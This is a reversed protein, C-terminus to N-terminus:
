ARKGNRWASGKWEKKIYDAAWFALAQITLAPNFGADTVLV